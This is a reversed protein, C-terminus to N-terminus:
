LLKTILTLQISGTTVGVINIASDAIWVNDVDLKRYYWANWFYEGGSVISAMDKNVSM